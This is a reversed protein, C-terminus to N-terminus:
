NLRFAIDIMRLAAALKQVIEFHKLPPHRANALFASFRGPRPQRKPSVPVRRPRIGRRTSQGSTTFSGHRSTLISPPTHRGLYAPAKSTIASHPRPMKM